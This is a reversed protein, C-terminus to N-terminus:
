KLYIKSIFCADGLRHLLTDIRPMCFPDNKLTTNFKRYDLTFRYDGREPVLNVPSACESTSPRIIGLELMKNVHQEIIASKHKSVPYARQAIPNGTTILRCVDTKCVGITDTLVDPFKSLLEHLEKDQSSSLGQLACLLDHNAFTLLNAPENKFWWLGADLDPIIKAKRIFDSGIVVHFPLSDLIIFDHMFEKGGLNFKINCAGKPMLKNSDGMLVPRLNEHTISVNLSNALKTNIYCHSAGIDFLAKIERDSIKLLLQPTTKSFLEASLLAGEESQM